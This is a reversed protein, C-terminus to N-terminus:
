ENTGGYATIALVDKEADDLCVANISIMQAGERDSDKEFSIVGCTKCFIHHIFHKNFQHNTLNNEGSLTSIIHTFVCSAL